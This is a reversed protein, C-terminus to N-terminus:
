TLLFFIFIIFVKCRFCFLNQSPINPHFDCLVSKEQLIVFLNLLPKLSVLPGLFFLDLFINVVSLCSLRKKTEDREIEPDAIAM